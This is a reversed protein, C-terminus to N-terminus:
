RAPEPLGMPNPFALTGSSTIHAAASALTEQLRAVAVDGLAAYPSLALTDTNNEIDTRLHEGNATLSLEPTTLGRYTLAQHASAWDDHSWGRSQQFLQPEIHEGAAFLVHSECGSLGASTLLAVHGDGRHERLTTAAQWLAAVPDGLPTVDSNAGFLPRGANDAHGIALQLTPLVADALRDADGNPLLRRLATAAATARAALVNNPDAIKWAEPIARQVRGPHFNYFTAEVLGSPAAGMPAARCAFYGMWFGKLGLGTAADRCEDTFYAVANLAELEHWITRAIERDM